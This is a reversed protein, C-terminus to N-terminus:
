WSPAGQSFCHQREQVAAHESRPSATRKGKQPHEKDCIRPGLCSSSGRTGKSLPPAPQEETWCSMSLPQKRCVSSLGDNEAPATSKAVSFDGPPLRHKAPPKSYNLM